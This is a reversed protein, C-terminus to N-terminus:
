AENNSAQPISMRLMYKLKDGQPSILIVGAGVGQVRESGDFYMTWVSSLDPPGTNQLKLWEATFDPLVQYKIAKQKEYTVRKSGNFYM